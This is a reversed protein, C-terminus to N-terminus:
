KKMAEQYSALVATWGGPSNVGEFLKEFGTGHREIYRHEFELRTASPGEAVFLLAVESGKERDLDVKWDPQMQWSLILRRPPEWLLVRGWQCEAGKSDLEFWRGGQKPEVVVDHFPEAGIHHTAPWWQGMKEVFVQFAKEIPVAVHITRKVATMPAPEPYM